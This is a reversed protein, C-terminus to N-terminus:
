ENGPGLNSNQRALHQEGDNLLELLQQYDPATEDSANDATRHLKIHQYQIL